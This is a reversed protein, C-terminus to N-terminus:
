AGKDDSKKPRHDFGGLAANLLEIAAKQAKWDGGTSPPKKKTLDDPKRPLNRARRFNEARWVSWSALNAQLETEQKLRQGEGKFM